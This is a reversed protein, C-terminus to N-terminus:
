MGVYNGCVRKTELLNNPPCQLCRFACTTLFASHGHEVFMDWLSKQLWTKHLFSSIFDSRLLADALALAESSAEVIM